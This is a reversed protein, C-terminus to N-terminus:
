WRWRGCRAVVVVLPLSSQLGASRYPRQRPERGEVWFPLNVVGGNNPGSTAALALPSYTCPSQIITISNEMAHDLTAQSGQIVISPIFCPIKSSHWSWRGRHRRRSLLLIDRSLSLSATTKRWAALHKNLLSVLWLFPLLSFSSIPPGGDAFNIEMQRCPMRRVSRWVRHLAM